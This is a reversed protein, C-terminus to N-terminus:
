YKAISLVFVAFLLIVVFMKILNVYNLNLINSDKNKSKDQELGIRNYNIM